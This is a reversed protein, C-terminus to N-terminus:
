YITLDTLNNKYFKGNTIKDCNTSFGVWQELFSRDIPRWVWFGKKSMVFKKGFLKDDLRKIAIRHFWDNINTKTLKPLGLAMSLLAMLQYNPNYTVWQYDSKTWGDINHFESIYDDGILLWEQYEDWIEIPVGIKEGNSKYYHTTQFFSHLPMQVGWLKKFKM